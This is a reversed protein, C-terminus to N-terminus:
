RRFFNSVFFWLNAPREALRRMFYPYWHTGYPVYIRVPYGARVLEQQLDRRIGYLMQFELATKPLGLREARQQAYRIRAEDHTALGPIPPFRGDASIQPVGAEVVGQLLVDTLRDFNADVDRKRPYAVEPPEKYAGKVLRIPVRREVLRRTDQESRYLYSQIAVGVNTYGQDYCWHILDLTADVLSSDEMDVRVFNGLSKARSVIQELNQRCLGRDVTLGIASLKVSVNARLNRREIEELIELTAETARRAEEADTTHEGLHDVTANLGATNLTQIVQMAEELTEGAIFRSAVNWAVKWRTVLRKAWEAKSLSILLARLM